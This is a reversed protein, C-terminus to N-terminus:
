GPMEQQQMEKRRDRRRLRVLTALDRAAPPRWLFAIIANVGIAAVVAAAVAWGAEVPLRTLPFAVAVTLLAAVMAPALARRYAWYRLGILRCAISTVVPDVLLAAVAYGVTVGVVGWRVGVLFATVFVVAQVAACRMTWHALGRMTFVRYSLGSVVHIAGAPAMIAVLLALDPWGDGVVIPVLLQAICALGVTAPFLLLAVAGSARTFLQRQAENNGASRALAPDLVQGIVSRVSTQPYTASRQALSYTGLADLGLVRSIIIKDAQGEAVFWIINAVVLNSSFRSVSRLDALTGLGSPRWPQWYWSWLTSIIAGALTGLVIAWAGVGAMALTISVITTAVAGIVVVQALKGFHLDRRLLAQHVQGLSTVVTILGFMRLVGVSSPQGLLSSVPGACLVLLGGLFVGSAANLWFISNILSDSLSSRQILAAGTGLDRLQDLFVVVVLAVAVVGFDAPTLLRALVLTTGLRLVQAFATAGATWRTAGALRHPNHPEAAGGSEPSDPAERATASVGSM